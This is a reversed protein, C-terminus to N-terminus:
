EVKLLAIDFIIVANKPINGSGQPGYGLVSPILLKGNGGEKFFPLGEKWGEILNSLPFKAGTSDSQDFVTGDTLYGKYAVTVDSTINPQSGTGQSDIVYYLGSGTGKADLSNDEIYKTIINEDIEAQKISNKEKCSVIGVCMLGVFVLKGFM